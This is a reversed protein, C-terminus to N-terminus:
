KLSDINGCYSTDIIKYALQNINKIVLVIINKSLPQKNGDLYIMRQDNLIYVSAMVRPEVCYGNINWYNIRYATDSLNLNTITFHKLDSSDFVTMECKMTDKPFNLLMYSTDIETHIPFVVGNNKPYVIKGAARTLSSDQVFYVVTPKSTGCSSFIITLAISIIIIIKM